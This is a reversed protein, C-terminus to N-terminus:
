KTLILKAHVGFDYDEGTLKAIQKEYTEIMCMVINKENTTLNCMCEGCSTCKWDGCETCQTSGASKNFWNGCVFCKVEDPSCM